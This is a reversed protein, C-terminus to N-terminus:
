FRKVVAARLRPGGAGMRGGLQLDLNHRLPMNHLRAARLADFAAVVHNAWLAIEAYRAQRYRKQSLEHTDHYNEFASSQDSTGFGFRYRADNSLLEYFADRDKEWLVRLEAANDGTNAAYREFSWWSAPNTPDGIIKAALDRAQDGRKRAQFRGFWGAAEGLLYAWGSNEGVYLHGAGPLVGSLTMALGESKWGKVDITKYTSDESVGWERDISRQALWLDPVESAGHLKPIALESTEIARAPPVAAGLALVVLTGCLLGIRRM